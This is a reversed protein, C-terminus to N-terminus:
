ERQVERPDKDDRIGLFEAHRLVEGTTWEAFKVQAVVAPKVWVYEDMEEATVSEGFHDTRSNPLNDFPCRSQRLPSLRDFLVKRSFRNLGIRVKGAYLLKGKEYYGVLLLELGTKGAPRYGGLVFEQQPKLQLKRWAESRAGPDYLSERLKAVIGERKAKRGLRILTAAAAELESSFLVGSEQVVRQLEAKRETLPLKRLDRGDLHLLDFACLLVHWAAGLSGRNQLQQFSVEGSKNIAIIEGDLVATGAHITKMSQAVSPFSATQDRGKRSYLRVSDGHKIAITRYGDWKWEYLWEPGKPLQSVKRALMPSVFPPPAVKKKLAPATAAVEPGSSGRNSQWVADRSAAIEEMSRGSAASRAAVARPVRTSKGTKTILWQPKEGDTTREITWEGRLKSGTLWLRLFGKWYNGEIVEYVGLDWVMVTGGGYEGEPIVGEFTLYDIPHDEVAFASRREGVKLPLGKPVAWSKLTNSMELRFDYHLHSAAHQQVAFRRKGGQLSRRPALPKPEGTRAFNRRAAYSELKVSAERLRKSRPEERPERIEAFEAPLRQKLKLVPAYLDGLKRLRKLAQQPEFRLHSDEKRKLAAKLEPWEVPMSVYPRAHKARISYVGVTTKTQVNQSWDIFVKRARLNKAMEAVILRPHERALEEALNKAFAKTSAYSVQTNLPVHVQIGKSGSMKPFSQLGRRDLKDRVLFAVSACDLTTAGEGPDLDFVVTAPRDINEVRHLFPHFEITAITACWVLTAVDNIVIYHIEGAEMKRPVDVTEIWEPAFKPADKEWFAEGHVGDPFRKLTIPRQALHPLIFASADAYFKILDTKRFQAAPFLFKQLNAVRIEKGEFQLRAEKTNQIKRTAAVQPKM